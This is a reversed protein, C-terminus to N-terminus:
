YLLFNVWLLYNIPSNCDIKGTRAPALWAPSIAIPAPSATQKPVNEAIPSDKIQQWAISPMTLFGSIDFCNREVMIRATARSSDVPIKARITAM